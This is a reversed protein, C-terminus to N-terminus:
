SSSTQDEGIAHFHSRDYLGSAERLINNWWGRASGAVDGLMPTVVTIWDGFQLASQETGTGPQPLLPLDSSRLPEMPTAHGQPQDPGGLGPPMVLPATGAMGAAVNSNMGGGGFSAMPGTATWSSPIQGSGHVGVAYGQSNGTSGVGGYLGGGQLHGHSTWAGGHLGPSNVATPSVPQSWVVGHGQGAMQAGRHLGDHGAPQMALSTAM